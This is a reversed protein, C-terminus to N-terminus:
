SPRLSPHMTPVPVEVVPGHNEVPEATRFAFFGLAGLLCVVVPVLLVLGLVVILVTLVSKNSTAPPAPAARVPAEGVSAEAVIVAPDGLRELITRVGAETEPSLEARAAAIHERLDQILEERRGPDLRAAAARVRDLYDAVLADGRTQNM